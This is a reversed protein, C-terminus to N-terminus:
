TLGQFIDNSLKKAAGQCLDLQEAKSLNSAITNFGPANVIVVYNCGRPLERELAIRAKDMAVKAARAQLPHREDM